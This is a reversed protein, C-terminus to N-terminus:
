DEGAPLATASDLRKLKYVHNIIKRISLNVNDLSALASDYDQATVKLNALELYAEANKFHNEINM